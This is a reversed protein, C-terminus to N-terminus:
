YLPVERVEYTSVLSLINTLFQHIYLELYLHNRSTLRSTFFKSLPLIQFITNVIYIYLDSVQNNIEICENTYNLQQRMPMYGADLDYIHLLFLYASMSSFFFLFLLKKQQFFTEVIRCKWQLWITEKKYDKQSLATHYLQIDTNRIIMLEVKTCINGSCTRFTILQNITVMTVLLGLKIFGCFISNM